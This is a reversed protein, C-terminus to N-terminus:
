HFIFCDSIEICMKFIIKASYILFDWASIVPNGIDEYESYWFLIFIFELFKGYCFFFFFFIKVYFIECNGHFTYKCDM